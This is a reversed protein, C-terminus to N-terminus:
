DLTPFGLNSAREVCEDPKLDEQRPTPREEFALDDIKRLVLAVSPVLIRTTLPLCVDTRLQRESNKKPLKDTAM